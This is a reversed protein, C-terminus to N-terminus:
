APALSSAMRWRHTRRVRGAGTFARPDWPSGPGSINWTFGADWGRTGANAAYDTRAAVAIANANGCNYPNPYLLPPRRTPCHFVSLPTQAMTAIANPKANATDTNKLGAGLDHLTQQEIYPLM